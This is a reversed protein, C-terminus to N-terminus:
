IVCNFFLINLSITESLQVTNVPKLPRQFFFLNRQEPYSEFNFNQTM